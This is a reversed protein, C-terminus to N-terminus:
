YSRCLDFLISDELNGDTEQPKQNKLQNLPFKWEVWLFFPSRLVAWIQSDVQRDVPQCSGEGCIKVADAWGCSITHFQASDNQRSFFFGACRTALFPFHPAWHSNECKSPQELPYKPDPTGVNRPLVSAQAVSFLQDSSSLWSLCTRGTLSRTFGNRGFPDRNKQQTKRKFWGLTAQNMARAKLDGFRNGKAPLHKAVPARLCIFMNWANPSSSPEAQFAVGATPHRQFILAVEHRPKGEFADLFSNGTKLSFWNAVKQDIDM